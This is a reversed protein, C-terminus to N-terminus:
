TLNLALIHADETPITYYNTRTAIHKFGHQAYVKLAPTNSPRVDLFITKIKNVMAAAITHQILATAARNRRNQPQIWLTLIEWDQGDSRIALHGHSTKNEIMAFLKTNDHMLMKRMGEASIVPDQWPTPVDTCTKIILAM